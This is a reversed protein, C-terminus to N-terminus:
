RELIGFAHFGVRSAGLGSNLSSAIDLEAPRMAAYSTPLLTLKPGTAALSVWLCSRPIGCMRRVLFCHGAIVDFRICSKFQALSVSPWPM